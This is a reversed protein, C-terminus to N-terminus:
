RLPIIKISNSFQVFTSYNFNLSEYIEKAPEVLTKLLEKNKSEEINDLNVSSIKYLSKLFQVPHFNKPLKFTIGNVEYEFRKRGVTLNNVESSLQIFPKFGKPTTDHLQKEKYNM